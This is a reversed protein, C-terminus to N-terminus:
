LKSTSQPKIRLEQLKELNLKSLDLEAVMNVIKSLKDDCAIYNEAKDQCNHYHLNALKVTKHIDEITKNKLDEVDSYNISEHDQKDLDQIRKCYRLRELIINKIDDGMNCGQWRQSLSLIEVNKM